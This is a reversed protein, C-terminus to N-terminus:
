SAPGSSEVARTEPRPMWPTETVPQWKVPRCGVGAIRRAVDTRALYSAAVQWTEYQQLQACNTLGCRAVHQVRM